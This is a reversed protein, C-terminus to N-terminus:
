EELYRNPIGFQEPDEQELIIEVGIRDESIVKYLELGFNLSDDIDIAESLCDEILKRRNGVDMKKYPSKAKNKGTKLWTKNLIEEPPFHFIMRLHYVFWPCHHRRFKTVAVFIEQRVFEKFAKKYADAEKSNKMGIAKAPGKGKRM